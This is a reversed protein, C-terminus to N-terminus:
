REPRFRYHYSEKRQVGWEEFDEQCTSKTFLKPRGRKEGENQGRGSFQDDLNCLMEFCKPGFYAEFYRHDDTVHVQFALHLHEVIIGVDDNSSWSFHEVM